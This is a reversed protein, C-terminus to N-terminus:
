ERSMDTSEQHKERELQKIREDKMEALADKMSIISQLLTIKEELMLRTHCTSCVKDKEDASYILVNKQPPTNISEESSTDPNLTSSNDIASRIQDHSLVGDKVLENLFQFTQRTLLGDIAQKSKDKFKAYESVTGYKRQLLATLYAKDFLASKAM